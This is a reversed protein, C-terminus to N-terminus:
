YIDEGYAGRTGDLVNTLHLLRASSPKGDILSLLEDACAVGADFNPLRVCLDPYFNSEGNNALEATVIGRERCRYRIPETWGSWSAIVADGRELGDVAERLARAFSATLEDGEPTAGISYRLDWTDLNDLTIPVTLEILETEPSNKLADFLGEVRQREQPADIDPAIYLLRRPAPALVREALLRAGGRYDFDVTSYASAREVCDYAVFPVREREIVEVSEASPGVNDKGLFIIGDIRGELYAILYDSLGGKKVKNTCLLLNYGIDELRSQIGRITQSFRPVALNKKAVVGVCQSRRARLTRAASNPVYSLERAAKLVRERTEPAIKQGPTDNLVYSVTATTVGAATAIDKLTVRKGM